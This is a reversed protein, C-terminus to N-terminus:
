VTGRKRKGKDLYRWGGSRSMELLVWRGGAVEAGGGSHVGGAVAMEAFLFATAAAVDEAASVAACGGVSVGELGAGAAM